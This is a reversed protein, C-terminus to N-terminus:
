EAKMGVLLLSVVGAIAALGGLLAYVAEDSPLLGAVLPGFAGIGFCMM